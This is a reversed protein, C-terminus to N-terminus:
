PDHYTVREPAYAKSVVYSGLGLGTTIKIRLVNIQSPQRGWYRPATM